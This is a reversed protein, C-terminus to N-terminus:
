GTALRGRLVTVAHGAIGVREDGVEVSLRGGRLSAQECEFADRGTRERWWPGAACQASGTVPDEDIGASPAFFRVLYDAGDGTSTVLLGLVDMSRVAILDPTIGRLVAPSAVEVLLNPPYAAGAIVEAGIAAAASVLVFPAVPQPRAAPLDLRIRGGSMTSARLDGGATAFRLPRSDDVGEERWLVHATALTAHGCLAVELTPTFWRLRRGAAEPWCFATEALNMEAAVAAMWDVPAPGDLLCVAAPNGSFPRDTFADVHYLAPQSPM